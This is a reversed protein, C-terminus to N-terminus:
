SPRLRFVFRVMETVFAFGATCHETDLPCLDKIEGYDLPMIHPRSSSSQLVLYSPAGPVWVGSFGGIEPLARMPARLLRDEADRSDGTTGPPLYNTSRKFFKLRTTGNGSPAQYPQYLHINDEATRLQGDAHGQADLIGVIIHPSRTMQDGLEMVIVDVFAENSTSRPVFFDETLYPPM